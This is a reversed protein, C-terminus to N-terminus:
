TGTYGSEWKVIENDKEDLFQMGSVFGNAHLNIAVKKIQKSNDWTIEIEKTANSSYTITKYAASELGNSFFLEIGYLANNDIVKFKQLKPKDTLAKLKELTTSEFNSSENGKIPFKRIELKWDDASGSMKELQKTMFKDMVDKM